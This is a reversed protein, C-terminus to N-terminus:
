EREVRYLLKYMGKVKRMEGDSFLRGKITEECTVYGNKDVIRDELNAVNVVNMDSVLYWTRAQSDKLIQPVFEKYDDPVYSSEKLSTCEKVACRYGICCNDAKRYFGATFTIEVLNKQLVKSAPINSPICVMGKEDLVKRFAVVCTDHIYGNWEHKKFFLGIGNM